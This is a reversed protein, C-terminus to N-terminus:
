KIRTSIGAVVHYVARAEAAVAQNLEGQLDAFVNGLVTPPAVGSGVDNTVIVVPQAASRLASLLEQAAAEFVSRSRATFDPKGSDGAGELLNGVWLTLCDVLVAAPPQAGKHVNIAEALDLPAEMTEWHAPRSIRHRGIRAAMVPDALDRKATAIFRVTGGKSLDMALQQAFRSKGSRVGGIVLIIAASM